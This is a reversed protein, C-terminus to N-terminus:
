QLNSDTKKKLDESRLSGILLM